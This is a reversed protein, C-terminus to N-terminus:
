LPVQSRGPLSHLHPLLRLPPLLTEYLRWREQCPLDNTASNSLDWMSVIILKQFIFLILSEDIVVHVGNDALRNETGIIEHRENEAAEGARLRFLQEFVGDFPHDHLFDV